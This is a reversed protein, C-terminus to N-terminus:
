HIQYKSKRLHWMAHPLWHTGSPYQQSRERWTRKQRGAFTLRRTPNQAPLGVCGTSAGANCCAQLSIVRSSANKAFIPLLALSFSSQETKSARKTALRSARHLAGLSRSSRLDKLSQMHNTNDHILMVVVFVGVGVTRSYKQRDQWTM